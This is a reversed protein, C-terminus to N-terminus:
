ICYSCHTVLREKGKGFTGRLQGSVRWRCEITGNDIVKTIKIVELKPSAWIFRTIHCFTKVFIKYRQKGVM